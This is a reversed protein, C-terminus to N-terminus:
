LQTTTEWEHKMSRTNQNICINVLLNSLFFLIKYSFPFMIWRMLNILFYVSWESDNIILLAFVIINGQLQIICGSIMSCRLLAILWWIISWTWEHIRLGWRRLVRCITFLYNFIVKCVGTLLIMIIKYIFIILAQPSYQENTRPKLVLVIYLWM